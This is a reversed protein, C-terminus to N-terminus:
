WRLDDKKEEKAKWKEADATACAVAVCFPFQYSCSSSSSFFRENKNHWHTILFSSWSAKSSTRFRLYFRTPLSRFPGFEDSCLTHTHRNHRHTHTHTRTYRWCCWCCSALWRSVNRIHKWTISPRCASTYCTSNSFGFKYQNKRKSPNPQRHSFKRAWAMTQAVFFFYFSFSFFFSRVNEMHGVHIRWNSPSARMEILHFALSHM